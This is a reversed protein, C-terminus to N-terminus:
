YFSTSRKIQIGAQVPIVSSIAVVFFLPNERKTNDNYPFSLFILTMIVACIMGKKGAM